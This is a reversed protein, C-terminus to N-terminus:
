KSFKFEKECIDCHSALSAVMVSPVSVKFRRSSRYKSRIFLRPIAIYFLRLPWTIVRFVFSLILYLFRCGAWLLGFIGARKKNALSGSKSAHYHGRKIRAEAQVTQLIIKPRKVSFVLSTQLFLEPQCPPVREEKFFEVGSVDPKRDCLMLLGPSSQEHNTSPGPFCAIPVAKLSFMM